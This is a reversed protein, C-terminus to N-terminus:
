KIMKVYIENTNKLYDGKVVEFCRWRRVERAYWQLMKELSGTTFVHHHFDLNEWGMEFGKKIAPMLQCFNDLSFGSLLNASIAHGMERYNSPQYYDKKFHRVGTSMRLRDFTKRKNPVAFYMKGGRKLKEHAKELASVPNRVHELVHNHIIFDLSEKPIGEMNELDTHYTVPVFEGGQKRYGANCGTEEDFLDAYEVKCYVPVPSPKTAAGFEVGQGKLGSYFISRAQNNDRCKAYGGQLPGYVMGGIIPISLIKKVEVHEVKAGSLGYYRVAQGTIERRGGEIIIYIKNYPVKSCTMLKVSELPM